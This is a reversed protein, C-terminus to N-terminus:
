KKRRASVETKAKFHEEIIEIDIYAAISKVVKAALMMFNIGITINPSWLVRTISSLKRLLEIAEPTYESIASVIAIGRKAADEGYDFIAGASAFDIIVDVPHEDFFHDMSFDEKDYILAPEDAQIGLFEPVSRFHLVASKRAVWSLEVDKNQLLVAAVAKGTRGFGFLGVKMTCRWIYKYRYTCTTKNLLWSPKNLIDFKDIISQANKSASLLEIIGDPVLIQPPILATSETM